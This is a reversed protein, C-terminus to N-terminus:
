FYTAICISISHYRYVSVYVKEDSELEPHYKKKQFTYMNTYKFYYLFSPMNKCKELINLM